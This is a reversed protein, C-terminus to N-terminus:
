IHRLSLHLATFGYVNREELSAGNECLLRVMELTGNERCATYLRTDETDTTDVVVADNNADVLAQPADM